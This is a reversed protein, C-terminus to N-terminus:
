TGISMFLTYETLQLLDLFYEGYSYIVLM